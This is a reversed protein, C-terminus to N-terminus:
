HVSGTQGQTSQFRGANAIAFGRNLSRQFPDAGVLVEISSPTLTARTVVTVPKHSRGARRRLGGPGDQCQQRAAISGAGGQAVSNIVQDPGLVVVSTPVF